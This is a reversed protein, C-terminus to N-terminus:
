YEGCRSHGFGISDAIQGLLFFSTATVACLRLSCTYVYLCTQPHQRYLYVVFDAKTICFEKVQGAQHMTSLLEMSPICVTRTM